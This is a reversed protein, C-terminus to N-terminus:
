LKVKAASAAQGAGMRGTEKNILSLTMSTGRCDFFVRDQEPCSKLKQKVLSWFIVGAVFSVPVSAVSAFLGALEADGRGSDL